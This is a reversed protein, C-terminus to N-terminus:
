KYLGMSPYPIVTFINQFSSNSSKKAFMKNILFNHKTLVGRGWQSMEVSMERSKKINKEIKLNQLSSAQEGAQNKM